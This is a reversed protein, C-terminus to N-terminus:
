FKLKVSKKTLNVETKIGYSFSFRPVSKVDIGEMVTVNGFFNSVTKCWIHGYEREGNDPHDTYSRYIVCPFSHDVLMFEGKEWVKMQDGEELGNADYVMYEEVDEGLTKLSSQSYPLAIGIFEYQGGKYHQYEFGPIM